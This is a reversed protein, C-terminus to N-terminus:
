IIEKGSLLDVIKKNSVTFIGDLTRTKLDDKEINELYAKQKMSEKVSSALCKNYFFEFPNHENSQLIEQIEGLSGAKSNVDIIVPNEDKLIFDISSFCYPLHEEILPNLIDVIKKQINGVGVQVSKLLQSDGKVYSKFTGELGKLCVDYKLVEGPMIEGFVHTKYVESEIGSLFEEVIIGGFNEVLRAKEKFELIAANIKDNGVIKYNIAQGSHYGFEDKLMVREVGKAKFFANFDFQKTLHLSFEPVYVTEPVHPYFMLNRYFKSSLLKHTLPYIAVQEQLFKKYFSTLEDMNLPGIIFNDTKVAADSTLKFFEVIETEPPLYDLLGKLSGEGTFKRLFVRRELDEKPLDKLIDKIIATLKTVDREDKGILKFLFPEIALIM